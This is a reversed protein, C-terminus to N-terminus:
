QFRRDVGRCVPRGCRESRSDAPVYERFDVLAKSLGERPDYIQLLAVSSTVYTEGEPLNQVGMFPEMIHKVLRFIAWDTASLLACDHGAAFLKIAVELYLLRLVLPFFHVVM